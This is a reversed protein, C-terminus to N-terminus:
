SSQAIVVCPASLDNTSECTAVQKKKKFQRFLFFKGTCLVTCVAFEESLSVNSQFTLWVGKSKCNRSRVFEM